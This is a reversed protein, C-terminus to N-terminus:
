PGSSGMMPSKPPHGDQPSTQEDTTWQQDRCALGYTFRRSSSSLGVSSPGRPYMRAERTFNVSSTRAFFCSSPLPLHTAETLPQEALATTFSAAEENLPPICTRMFAHRLALAQGQGFHDLQLGRWRAMYCRQLGLSFLTERRGTVMRLTTIISM